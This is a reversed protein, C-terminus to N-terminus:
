SQAWHRIHHELEEIILEQDSMISSSTASRYLASCEKSKSQVCVRHAQGHCTTERHQEQQLGITLAAIRRFM